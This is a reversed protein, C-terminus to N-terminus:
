DEEFQERLLGIAKRNAAPVQLADIEDLTAWRLERGAPAGPEGEADAALFFHVRVTRDPYAHDEVHFLVADGIALSAEEAAERRAAALPTEGREVRGGPFEWSGALHSGSPRKQLLFKGGRRVVAVAVDVIPEM